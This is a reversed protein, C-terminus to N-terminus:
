GVQARHNRARQSGAVRINRRKDVDALAQLDTTLTVRHLCEVCRAEQASLMTRERYGIRPVRGRTRPRGLVQPPVSENRPVFTVLLQHRCTRNAIVSAVILALAKRARQLLLM